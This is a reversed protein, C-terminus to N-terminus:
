TTQRTDKLPQYIRTWRKKRQKTPRKTVQYERTFLSGYSPLERDKMIWCRESPLQHRKPNKTQTRSEAAMITSLSDTKIVIEHRNNRKSQIARIISWVSCRTKLYFEKRSRTSKKSSLMDKKTEWRRDTRLYRSTNTMNTLREIRKWKSTEPGFASLRIDFQRENIPKWSPRDYRPVM